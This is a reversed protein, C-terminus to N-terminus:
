FEGKRIKDAFDELEHLWFEGDGGVHRKFKFVFEDVLKADHERLAEDSTQTALAEMSKAIPRTLKQHNILADRLQEIHAQQSIVKEGTGIELAETDALAMRLHSIEADKEAITTELDAIKRSAWHEAETKAINSDMIRRELECPDTAKCAQERTPTTMESQYYGQEKNCM